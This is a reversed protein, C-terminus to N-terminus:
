EHIVSYSNKDHVYVDHTTAEPVNEAKLPDKWHISWHMILTSYFSFDYGSRVPLSQSLSLTFFKFISPRLYTCLDIDQYLTIIIAVVLRDQTM